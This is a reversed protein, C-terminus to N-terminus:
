QEELVEELSKRKYVELMGGRTCNVIEVGHAKAYKKAEEYGTIMKDHNKEQNKDVFGSEVVHNNAGKKYSCDAGLLYIQKFGMYIAIQILSYTISYGDYVLSYVDDSFKSFYKEIELQNDHYARNLPFVNFNKPVDFEEAIQHGVFVNEKDKYYKQIVDEMSRYVNNDQIGYYTPRWETESFLKCISNMGFTVEDKLLELDSITLSPGTAVIFCRGGESINKYNKLSIYRDDQKGARRLDAEKELKRNEFYFRPMRFYYWMRTLLRSSHKLEVLKDTIGSM